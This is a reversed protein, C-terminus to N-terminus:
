QNNVRISSYKLTEAIRGIDHAISIFVFMMFIAVAAIILNPFKDM